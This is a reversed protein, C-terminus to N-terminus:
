PVSLAQYQEPLANRRSRMTDLVRGVRVSTVRSVAPAQNQLLSGGSAVAVFSGSVNAQAATNMANVFEKARTAYSGQDATSLVGTVFNPMLSPAPLYFRGRGLVGARDSQLGVTLAVQYPTNSPVGAGAVQTVEDAQQYAGETTLLTKGNLGIHAARVRTLIANSGIVPKLSDWAGRAQAALGALGAQTVPGAGSGIAM